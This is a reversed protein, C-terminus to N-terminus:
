VEIGIAEFVGVEVFAKNMNAPFNKFIRHAAEPKIVAWKGTPFANERIPRKNEPTPHSTVEILTVGTEMKRKCEECPEYDICMHMPAEFERGDPLIVEGLLAIEGKEKGCWFCVPMTPNLGHKASVKIGKTKAM